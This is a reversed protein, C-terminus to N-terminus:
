GQPSVQEERLVHILQDLAKPDNVAIWCDSPIMSAYLQRRSALEPFLVAEFDSKQTLSFLRTFAEYAAPSFVTVGIHAPIPVLPYARVEEIVGANVRLGTYAYRSGDVVVATAIMGQRVGALHDAVIDHPFSGPYRVIQDDPNHVILSRERPISGNELANRIAGGRGVPVEPDYSYSVRVGLRSGDGLVEEVSTAQHFVLAVFDRFGADRYMRITREIMTDGSPLTLAAKHVGKPETVSQLRSGHGGAALAVVCSAAFKALEEPKLTARRGPRCLASRLATLAEDM